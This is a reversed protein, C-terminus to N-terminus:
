YLCNDFAEMGFQGPASKPGKKDAKPFAVRSLKGSGSEAFLHAPRKADCNSPQLM